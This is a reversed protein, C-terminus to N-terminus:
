YTNGDKELLVKDIEDEARNDGDKYWEFFPVSLVTWGKARLLRRRRMYLLELQSLRSFSVAVHVQRTREAPEGASTAQRVSSACPSSHPDPVTRWITAIPCSESSSLLM